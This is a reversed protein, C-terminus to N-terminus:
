VHLVAYADEECGVNSCSHFMLMFTVRCEMQGHEQFNNRHLM